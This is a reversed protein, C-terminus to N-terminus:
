AKKPSFIAWDQSSIMAQMRQTFEDSPSQASLTRYLETVRRMGDIEQQITQPTVAAAEGPRGTPAQIWGQALSFNMLNECRCPNGPDYLSCNKCLFEKLNKRARHILVKAAGPSKGLIGAVDEIPLKLLVYLIFALRQYFSLCRLLGSFCGDKIQNLLIQKERESFTNADKSQASHLLGEMSAFSGQKMFRHCENKAITYIWTYLRSDGRFQDIHRYVKILTEQTIDEADQHNGVMRYALHYIKFGYASNLLNFSAEPRTKLDHILTKEDVPELLAEIEQRAPDNPNFWEYHCNMCHWDNWKRNQFCSGLVAEGREIM